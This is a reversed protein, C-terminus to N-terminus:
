GAPAAVPGPNASPAAAGPGRVGALLAQGQKDVFQTFVQQSYGFVIAWAIIQASSDLATLGPVFGGRMLLLGLVATLAGTPLKLWALAVPVNYPTATGSIRRLASAAAIAAALLGVIELVLYNAEIAPLEAISGPVEAAKLGGSSAVPCVATVTRGSGGAGPPTEPTFCPPVVTPFLFGLVAVLVALFGLAASVYKVIRVFSGVRLRDRLAQLRAVNVADIIAEVDAQTPPRKATEKWIDEVKTRRPDKVQLQERVLAILGPLLPTVEEPEIMRLLLDRASDLHVQAVSLHAGVLHGPHQAHSLKERAENLEARVEDALRAKDPQLPKTELLAELENIGARIVERLEWSGKEWQMERCRRRRGRWWEVPHRFLSVESEFRPAPPQRDSM